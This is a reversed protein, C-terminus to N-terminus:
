TSARDAPGGHEHEARLDNSSCDLDRTEQPNLGLLRNM